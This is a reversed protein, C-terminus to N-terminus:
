NLLHIAMANMAIHSMVNHANICLGIVKAIKKQAKRIAYLVDKKIMTHKVMHSWLHSM